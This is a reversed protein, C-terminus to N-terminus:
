WRWHRSIKRRHSTADKAIADNEATAHRRTEHRRPRSSTFVNVDAWSQLKAACIGCYNKVAECHGEM